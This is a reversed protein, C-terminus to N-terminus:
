LSVVTVDLINEIAKMEALLASGPDGVVKIRACAAGNEGSYIVNRMGQVNMGQSRLLDLLGALVGVRDLHRVVLQHTAVSVTRMNVCNPAEGTEYWKQIIRCAEEAVASQAQDNSAGIHHTGYVGDVCAIPCDFSGDAAPEVEFVDLGARFDRDRVADALAREDVIGGRSTNVVTASDPLAAIVEAGILHRTQEMLPVHVTLISCRDAVALVSDCLEVGLREAMADDLEPAYCLVNMEFARARAVVAQAIAGAGIVGLTSGKLGTAKSYRKKRWQGAKLDAVNDAIRRDANLIHGMALEAVAIANMGPCNAVSVARSSAVDLDITNVGAGARVILQLATAAEIHGAQVRTSRVILVDPNVERLRTELGENKLSPDAVVTAGLSELRTAVFTPLRDAILVIM